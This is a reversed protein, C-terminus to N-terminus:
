VVPHANIYHKFAEKDAEEPTVDVAVISVHTPEECLDMWHDHSYATSNATDKFQKIPRPYSGYRVNLGDDIYLYTSTPKGNERIVNILTNRLAPLVERNFIM